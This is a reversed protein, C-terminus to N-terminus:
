FLVANVIALSTLVWVVTLTAAGLHAFLLMEVIGLFFCLFVAIGLKFLRKPTSPKVKARGFFFEHDENPFAPRGSVKRRLAIIGIGCLIVILLTTAEWLAFGCKEVQIM